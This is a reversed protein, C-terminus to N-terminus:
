SSRQFLSLEVIVRPRGITIELRDMNILTYLLFILTILSLIVSITSVMNRDFIEQVHAGFEPDAQTFNEVM